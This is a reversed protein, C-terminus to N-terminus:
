IILNPLYMSTILNNSGGGVMVVDFSKDGM